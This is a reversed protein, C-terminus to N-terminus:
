SSCKCGSETNKNAITNETDATIRLFSFELSGDHGEDWIQLLLYNEHQNGNGSFLQFTHPM